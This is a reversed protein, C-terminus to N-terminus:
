KVFDRGLLRFWGYNLQDADLIGGVADPRVAVIESGYARPHAPGIGMRGITVEIRQNKPIEATFLCCHNGTRRVPSPYPEFTRKSDFASMDIVARLTRYRPLM